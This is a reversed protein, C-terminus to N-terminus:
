GAMQDVVVDFDGLTCYASCTILMQIHVKSLANCVKSKNKMWEVNLASQFCFLVRPSCPRGSSAWGKPANLEHLIDCVEDQLKFRSFLRAVSYKQSYINAIIYRMLPSNKVHSFTIGTLHKM